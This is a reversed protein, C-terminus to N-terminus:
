AQQLETTLTCHTKWFIDMGRGHFTKLISGGGRQFNWKLTMSENFFNPKKFEGGGGQIEM